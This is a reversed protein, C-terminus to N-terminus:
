MDYSYYVLVYLISSNPTPIMELCPLDYLGPTLPDKETNDVRRKTSTFKIM